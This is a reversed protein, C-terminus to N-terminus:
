PTKQSGILGSVMKSLLELHGYLTKFQENAIYKNESLIEVVAVCENISGRANIYFNKKDKHHFRGAGEAINLTISLAARKLQDKITYDQFKATQLVALIESFFKKSEQYANLKEFEFM